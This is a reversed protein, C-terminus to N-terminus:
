LLMTAGFAAVLLVLQILRALGLSVRGAAIPRNRKVPHRRDSERDAIDNHIYVARAAVSFIVFGLISRVIAEPPFPPGSFLLGPFVFVNKLWEDCRLLHWATRAVGVSGSAKSTALVTAENGRMSNAM